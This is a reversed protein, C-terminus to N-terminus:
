GTYMLCNTSLECAPNQGYTLSTGTDELLDSFNEVLERHKLTIPWTKRFRHQQKENSTINSFVLGEKLRSKVCHLELATINYGACAAM